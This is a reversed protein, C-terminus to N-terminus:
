SCLWNRLPLVKVAPRPGTAVQRVRLCDNRMHDSVELCGARSGEPSEIEDSEVASYADPARLGQSRMRALPIPALFDRRRSDM